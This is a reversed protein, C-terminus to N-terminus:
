EDAARGNWKKRLCDEDVEGFCTASNCKDNQCQVMYYHDDPETGLDIIEVEAGCFPCPKLEENM